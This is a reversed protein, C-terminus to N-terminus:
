SKSPGPNHKACGDTGKSNIDQNRANGTLENAGPLNSLFKQSNIKLSFKTISPVTIDQSFVKLQIGNSM